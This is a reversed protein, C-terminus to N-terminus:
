VCQNMFHFEATKMDIDENLNVTKLYEDLAELFHDLGNLIEPSGEKNKLANVTAQVLQFPINNYNKRLIVDNSQSNHNHIVIKYM